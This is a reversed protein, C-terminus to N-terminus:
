WSNEEIGADKKWVTFGPFEGHDECVTTEEWILTDGIEWGMQEILGEPFSLVYDGNEELEIEAIMDM